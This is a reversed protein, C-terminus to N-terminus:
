CFSKCPKCGKPNDITEQYCPEGRMGPKFNAELWGLFPGFDDPTINSRFGPGKKEINKFKEPIDIAVKGFYYFRSSILAFQDLREFDDKPCLNDGRTKEYTGDRMQRKEQFRPDAYYEERTIKEDVHMAYVLKGHGASRKLNVGGTGIIWDGKKALEVINRRGGPKERFKCRCLTCFGFYPNPAEGNDHEVVYSFVKM